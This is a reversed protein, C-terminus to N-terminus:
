NYDDIVTVIKFDKVHNTKTELDEEQYQIEIRKYCKKCYYNKEIFKEKSNLFECNTCFIGNKINSGMKLFEAFPFGPPGM